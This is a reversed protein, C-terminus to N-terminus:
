AALSESRARHSERETTYAPLWDRWVIAVYVYFGLRTSKTDCAARLAVFSSSSSALSVCKTALLAIEGPNPNSTISDHACPIGRDSPSETVPEEHGKGQINCHTSEASTPHQALSFPNAITHVLQSYHYDYLLPLKDLKTRTTARTEM